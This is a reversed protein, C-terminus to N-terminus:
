AVTCVRILSGRADGRSWYNTAGVANIRAFMFYRFDPGAPDNWQGDVVTCAHPDVLTPSPEQLM